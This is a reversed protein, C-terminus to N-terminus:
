RRFYPADFGAPQRSLLPTIAIAYHCRLTPQRSAADHFRLRAPTADHRFRIMAYDLWSIAADPQWRALM